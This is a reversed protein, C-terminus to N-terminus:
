MVNLFCITSFLILLFYHLLHSFFWVKTLSISERHWATTVVKQIGKFIILNYRAVTEQIWTREPSQWQIGHCVLHPLSLITTKKESGSSMELSTHTDTHTHTHTHTHSVSLSLSLSLSIIKIFVSPFYLPPSCPFSPLNQTEYKWSSFWQPFSWHGEFSFPYLSSLPCSILFLSHLPSNLPSPLRGYATGQPSRPYVFHSSAPKRFHVSCPSGLPSPPQASPYLSGSPHLCSGVSAGSTQSGCTSLFILWSLVKYYFGCLDCTRLAAQPSCCSYLCGPNPTKSFPVHHKWFWSSARPSLSVPTLLAPILLM